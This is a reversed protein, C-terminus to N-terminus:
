GSTGRAAADCRDPRARDPARSLSTSGDRRYGLRENLLSPESADTRIELASYSSLAVGTKSVVGSV